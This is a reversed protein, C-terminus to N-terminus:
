GSRSGSTPNVLWTVRRAPDASVVLVTGRLLDMGIVGPANGAEDRVLLRPVPIAADGLHLTAGNVEAGYTEGGSVGHGSMQRTGGVLGPVAAAAFETRKGGSDLMTVVPEFPEIAAHILVTSDGSARDLSVPLLDPSRAAVWAVVEAEDGDLLILGGAAFDLVVQATPHLHQPSLFGGVGWAEFPAPGAIAIVDHLELAVGGVEVALDDVSWSAVSAGASDTGPEAATRRLGLRDTLEITLIHDTSGTDLILKTAAGRVIAEVMPAHTVEDGVQFTIPAELLIRPPTM